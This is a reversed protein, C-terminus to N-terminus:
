NLKLLNKLGIQSGLADGDPNNHRHIVITDFKEILEVATKYM